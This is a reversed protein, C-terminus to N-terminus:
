GVHFQRRTDKIVCGIRKRIKAHMYYRRRAECKEEALLGYFLGLWQGSMECVVLMNLELRLRASTAKTVRALASDIAWCRRMLRSLLM